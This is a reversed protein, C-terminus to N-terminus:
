IVELFESSDIGVYESKAKEKQNRQGPKQPSLQWNPTNSNDLLWGDTYFVCFRRKNLDNAVLSSLAGDQVSLTCRARHLKSERCNKSRCIFFRRNEATM